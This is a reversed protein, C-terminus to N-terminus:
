RVMKWLSLMAPMRKGVPSPKSTVTVRDWVVLRQLKQPLSGLDYTQPEHPYPVGTCRELKGAKTSTDGLPPIVAGIRTM